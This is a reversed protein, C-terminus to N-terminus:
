QLEWKEGAGRFGGAAMRCAPLRGRGVAVQLGACPRGVRSAPGMLPGHGGAEAPALLVTCPKLISAPGGAWGRARVETLAGAAEGEEAEEEAALELLPPPTLSYRRPDDSDTLRWLFGAGM